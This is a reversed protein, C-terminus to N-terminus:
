LVNSITDQEKVGELQSITDALMEENKSVITTDITLHQFKQKKKKKHEGKSKLKKGLKEQKVVSKTDNKKVAFALILCLIVLWLFNKVHWIKISSIRGSKANTKHNVTPTNQRPAHDSNARAQRLLQERYVLEEELKKLREANLKANGQEKLQYDYKARKNTDILTNYAANVQKFMQTFYEDGDNKDPHFKLSLKRYAKKIEETSADQLIGLIHYYDAM